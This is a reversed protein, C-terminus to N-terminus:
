GLDNADQVSEQQLRHVRDAILERAQKVTQYSCGYRSLGVNRLVDGVSVPCPKTYRQEPTARNWWENVLRKVEERVGVM